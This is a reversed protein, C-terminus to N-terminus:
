DLGLESELWARAEVIKPGLADRDAVFFFPELRAVVEAPLDLPLYRMGFDQRAPCHRARLVEVLPGLLFRYYTDFAELPNGRALNKAPLHAFLRTRARIQALREALAPGLRGDPAPRLRDEHDFLVVPTGHRVPDLWIELRDPRMLALDVLLTEPLGQLQYFRQSFDPTLAAPVQFSARVGALAALRAEIAAFAAEAHEPPVVAVLDIDSLADARGFADSGGLFAARVEPLARLTETLAEILTSRDM